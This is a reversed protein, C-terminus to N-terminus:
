NTQARELVRHFYHVMRDIIVDLGIILVSGIAFGAVYAYINVEGILM